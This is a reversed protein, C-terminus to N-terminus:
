GFNGMTYATWIQRIQEDTGWFECTQENIKIKYQISGHVTEYTGAPVICNGTITIFRLNDDIVGVGQEIRITFNGDKKMLIMIMDLIRFNVAGNRDESSMLIKYAKENQGTLPPNEWNDAHLVAFKSSDPETKSVDKDVAINDTKDINKNSHNNFNVFIGIAVVAIIGIAIVARYRKLKAFLGTQKEFESNEIKKDIEMEKVSNAASSVAEKTKEVATKAHKEVNDNLDALKKDLEMERVKEATASMTKQTQEKLNDLKKDLEMDQLKDQAINKANQLKEKAKNAYNKFDKNKM